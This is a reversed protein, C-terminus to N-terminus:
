CSLSPLICAGLLGAEAGLLAPVVQTGGAHLGGSAPAGKVTLRYVYSRRGLEEFLSPSLLDWSNALGGGIVFLPLNLINILSALGIGLARGAEAFLGQIEPNGRRASNALSRATLPGDGDNWFKKGPARDQERLREAAKVLATASAYMELCGTGGCGCMPGDPFITMHGAEGAMGTAGTWIKGNLIIGSGVGTGLTLMCLSHIGLLKGQGLVSEALAAVNGDSEVVVPMQLREELEERLNFGDWGPLNPPNRLRGAPLELPGPSGIGIGLLEGDILLEERLSQIAQCMDEVVARPGAAVRTPLEVHRLM